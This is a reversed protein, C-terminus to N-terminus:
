PMAMCSRSPSPLSSTARVLTPLLWTTTSRFRPNAIGVIADNVGVLPAVPVETIMVPVSRSGVGALLMTKKPVVLPVTVAEEAVLRVTVTGDPATYPGRVTVVPPRVTVEGRGNVGENM